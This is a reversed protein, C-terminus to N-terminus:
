YKEHKQKFFLKNKVYIDKIIELNCHWTGQCDASEM